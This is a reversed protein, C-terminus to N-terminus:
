DPRAPVLFNECLSVFTKGIIKRQSGLGKCLDFTSDRDIAKAIDEPKRFYKQWLHRYKGNVLGWKSYYYYTKGSIKKSEFREM